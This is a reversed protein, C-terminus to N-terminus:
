REVTSDGAQVLKADTWAKAVLTRYGAVTIDAHFTTLIWRSQEYICQQDFPRLIVRKIVIYAALKMNISLFDYKWKYNM